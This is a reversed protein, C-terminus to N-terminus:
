QGLRERLAAIRRSAARYEGSLKDPALTTGYVSCALGAVDLAVEALELDRDTLPYDERGALEQELAVAIARAQDREALLTTRSMPDDHETM